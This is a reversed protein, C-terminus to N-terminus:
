RRRNRRMVRNRSEEISFFGIRTMLDVDYERFIDDGSPFECQFIKVDGTLANHFEWTDSGIYGIKGIYEEEFGDALACDICIEARSMDVRCTAYLWEEGFADCIEQAVTLLNKGDDEVTISGRNVSPIHASENRRSMSRTHKRIM